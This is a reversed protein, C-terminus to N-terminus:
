RRRLAAYAFSQRGGAPTRHVEGAQAVLDFGPGLRAALTQPSYRVVPLGSCQEPGDLAFTAIIATSGPATAAKLAEIYADQAAAETLFHFVARDHWVNWTRSPKWNTIDAVIWTVREAATLRKQAIALAAESVDLVALDTYGALLLEDVLTSAGSGVDLISSELSPAAARILELSLEPRRQYWSVDTADKSTYVRDWHSRRDNKPATTM